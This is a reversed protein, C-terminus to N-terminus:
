ASAARPEPCAVCHRAAALLDDLDFPKPCIACSWRDLDDRLRDILDTAASCILVPLAATTPDAKLQRLYASGDAAHGAGVLLDLILLDPALAVL